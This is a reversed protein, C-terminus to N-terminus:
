KKPLMKLKDYNYYDYCLCKKRQESLITYENM